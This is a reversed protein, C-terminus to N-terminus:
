DLSSCSVFTTFITSLQLKQNFNKFLEDKAKQMKEAFDNDSEALAIEDLLDFSVDKKLFEKGKPHEKLAQYPTRYVNYVKKQKGKKDTIKTAFGCPRHYNLYINFYTKYFTDLVPAYRQPIHRYGMHKRIVSGNKSEALANDNCHRPRSKTQRILLKNLLAAIVKNIFESGNDSHFGLIVFPFQEILDALLPALYLESIKEVCGVIEWQTVEDTINIHYVGKEKDLDGQHVSDVRLYGPQGQPEPKRRQGISNKVPNTKKVTLCHSVYQRTERLNYIHSVSVRKINEYEEKKFIECEREMIKKTAPGSLRLHLNDTKVLLAIDKPAYKKAFSRRRVPSLFIKGFKRKKGFLRTIQSRSLGSMRAVYERMTGKEKKKLSFYRFKTLVESVWDYLEQKSLAQFEIGRDVKLFEKIQTISVIRSDNM